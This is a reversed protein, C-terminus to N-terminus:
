FDIAVSRFAFGDVASSPLAGLFAPGPKLTEPKRSHSAVTGGNDEEAGRAEADEVINLPKSSKSVNSVESVELVQRKSIAAKRL